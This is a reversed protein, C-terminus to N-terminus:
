KTDVSSIVHVEPLLIVSRNKTTTKMVKQKAAVLGTM